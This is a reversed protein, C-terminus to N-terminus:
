EKAVKDVLTENNVVGCFRDTAAPLLLRSKFNLEELDLCDLLPDSVLQETVLLKPNRHMLSPRHWIQLEMDVSVFTKCILNSNGGNQNLAVMKCLCRYPLAKIYLDVGAPKIPKIM